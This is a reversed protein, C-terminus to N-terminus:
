NWVNGGLDHLTATDMRRSLGKMSSSKLYVDAGEAAEISASGGEITSNTVHVKAALAAIGIGTAVIRSNTIYLECGGRAVIADGNVELTRNDLRLFRSGECVIPDDLRQLRTGEARPANALAASRTSAADGASTVSIGPGTIQVRGGSREVTYSTSDRSTTGAPPESASTVAEEERVAEEGARAALVTAATAPAATQVGDGGEAAPRQDAAGATGIAPGAGAIMAAPGAALEDLKVTRLEGTSRLRLTFVRNDADVAVVEIGPNRELAARAWQMEDSERRACASLVSVALVAAIRALSRRDEGVRTADM